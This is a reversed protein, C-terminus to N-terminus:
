RNSLLESQASIWKYGGAAQMLAFFKTESVLPRLHASKGQLARECLYVPKTLNKGHKILVSVIKRAAYVPIEKIQAIPASFLTRLDQIRPDNMMKPYYVNTRNHVAKGNYKRLVQLAETLEKTGTAKHLKGACMCPYFSSIIAKFRHLRYEKDADRQAAKEAKEDRITECFLEGRESSSRKLLPSPPNSIRAERPNGKSLNEQNEDEFKSLGSGDVCGRKRNHMHTNKYLYNLEPFMNQGKVSTIFGAVKDGIRECNCLSVTYRYLDDQHFDSTLLNPAKARHLAKIRRFTDGNLTIITARDFYEKGQMRHRDTRLFAPCDKYCIRATKNERKDSYASVVSLGYESMTEADRILNYTTWYSFNLTDAIDPVSMFLDYGACKTIFALRQLIKYVEKKNRRPRGRKRQEM